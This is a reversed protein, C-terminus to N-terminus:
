VEEVAPIELVFVKYGVWHEYADQIVTPTQDRWYNEADFWENPRGIDHMYETEEWVDWPAGVDPPYVESNVLSAWMHEDLINYAEEETEFRTSIMVEQTDGVIRMILFFAGTLDKTIQRADDRVAAQLKAEAKCFVITDMPGGDPLNREAEEVERLLRTLHVYKSM